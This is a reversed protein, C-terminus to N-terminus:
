LNFEKMLDSAAKQKAAKTPKTNKKKTKPKKNDVLNKVLYDLAISEAKEIVFTKKTESKRIKKLIKEGMMINVSNLVIGDERHKLVMQYKLQSFANIPCAILTTEM